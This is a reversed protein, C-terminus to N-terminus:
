VKMTTIKVHPISNIGKFYKYKSKNMLEIVYNIFDYECSVATFIEHDDPTYGGHVIRNRIGYTKIYWAGVINKEDKINWQGGLIKPLESDIRKKFPTNEFKETIEGESMNTENVWNMLIITSVLEESATTFEVISQIANGQSLLFRANQFHAYYSDFQHNMNAMELATAFNEDSLQKKEKPIGYMSHITMWNFTEWTEIDIGRFHSAYEINDKTVTRVSEDDVVFAYKIIVENLKEISVNRLFDFTKFVRSTCNFFDNMETKGNRNKVSIMDEKLNCDIEDFHIYPNELLISIECRTFYSDYKKSKRKIFGFFLEENHKISQCNYNIQCHNEGILYNLAFEKGEFPLDFPLIIGYQIIFSPNGELFVKKMKSFYKKTFLYHNDLNLNKNAWTKKKNLDNVYKNVKRNEM